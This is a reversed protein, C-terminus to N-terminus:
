HLYATTAGAYRPSGTLGAQRYQLLRGFLGAAFAAVAASLVPSSARLGVSVVTRRFDARFRNICEGAVANLPLAGVQPLCEDAAAVGLNVAWQFALPAFADRAPVRPIAPIVATKTRNM